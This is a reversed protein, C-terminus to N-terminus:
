SIFEKKWVKLAESNNKIKYGGELSPGYGAPAYYTAMPHMEVRLGNSWFFESIQMSKYMADKKHSVVAKRYATTRIISGYLYGISVPYSETSNDNVTTFMLGEDYGFGVRHDIGDFDVSPSVMALKRYSPNGEFTDLCHRISGPEFASDEELFLIFRGSVLQLAKAPDQCPIIEYDVFKLEEELKDWQARQIRPVVVSLIM